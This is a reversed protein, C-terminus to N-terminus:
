PYTLTLQRLIYSQSVMPATCFNDHIASRAVVQQTSSRRRQGAGQTATTTYPQRDRPRQKRTTRGGALIQDAFALRPTVPLGTRDPGNDEMERDSSLASDDPTYALGHYFIHNIGAVIARCLERDAEDPADFDEDLCNHVSFFTYVNHHAM